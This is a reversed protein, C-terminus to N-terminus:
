SAGDKPALAALNDYLRQAAKAKRHAMHLINSVDNESWDLGKLIALIAELEDLVNELVDGSPYVGTLAEPGPEFRLDEIEGLETVLHPPTAESTTKTSRASKQQVKKM